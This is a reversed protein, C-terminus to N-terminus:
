QTDEPPVDEGHKRARGRQQAKRKKLNARLAAARQAARDAARQRGAESEGPGDKNRAGMAGLHATRCRGTLM